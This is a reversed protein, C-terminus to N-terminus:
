LRVAKNRRKIPKEINEDNEPRAYLGRRQLLAAAPKEPRLILLLEGVLQGVEGVKPLTKMADMLVEVRHKPRNNPDNTFALHYLRDLSKYADIGDYLDQKIQPVYPDISIPHHFLHINNIIIPQRQSCVLICHALAGDFDIYRRRREANDAHVIPLMGNMNAKHLVGRVQDALADQFLGLFADLRVCFQDLLRQYKQNEAEMVKEASAARRLQIGEQLWPGKSPKGM